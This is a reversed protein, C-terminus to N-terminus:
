VGSMTDDSEANNEELFEKWHKKHKRKRNYKNKPKIEKEPLHPARIKYDRKVQIEIKGDMVKRENIM